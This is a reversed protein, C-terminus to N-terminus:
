STPNFFPKFFFLIKETNSSAHKFSYNKSKKGLTLHSSPHQFGPAYYSHKMNVRMM